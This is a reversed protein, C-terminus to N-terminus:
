PKFNGIIIDGESLGSKIEISGNSGEQGTVVYVKESDEGVKKMVFEGDADKEIFRNPIYLVDDLRSKEISVSATMGSRIREDVEAFLVRARYVSVGDVETQAPDINQLTGPFTVDTGYADLTISSPLGALLGVVDSEPVEVVVEYAGDTIVGTVIKGAEAQEGLKIDMKSVVGAFPARITRLNLDALVSAVRAEAQKIKANSIQESINNSEAADRTAIASKYANLNQVYNAGEVNPISIKWTDGVSTQGEEFKLYLGKTGIPVAKYYLIDTVGKEIGSYRFQRNSINNSYEVNIVYEGENEGSYSGSVTPAFDPEADPDKSYAVLGDSLLTVYANEVDRDTQADVVKAEARALDLSAQADSLDARLSANNLEVLKEGAGVRDGAKKYVREVTGSTSFSMEAGQSPEAEGNLVLTDIVSGREVTATSLGEDANGNGIIMILLIAIIIGIVASKGKNETIFLKIKQM